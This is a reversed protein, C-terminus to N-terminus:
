HRLLFEKSNIIAWAVDEWAKRRDPARAVHELFSLGAPRTSNTASPPSRSRKSSRRTPPVPRSCAASGTTRPRSSPASRRATSSSFRRPSPPRSPANANAPSCATPSASPRSSRGAPGPAPCRRPASRSRAGPRLARGTRPGPLDRRDPGRRAPAPRRRALLQDRRRRQDREAPRRPRLDAVEHDPRGAAPAPLRGQGARRGPSRALAPQVPPQLRPLRRGARRDGPGDPPVLGPQGHEPRVPPQQRTLWRALDDLADPDDGLDPRPGHPPKPALPEGSRPHITGPRGELYIIEDGTVEHLDLDDKRRNNIEKRRVNTFYAALGYYDDQTWADYPHNHCRACQLRVGLFVQAFTEAATSPDRNTRHFSSPPNNFNSGTSAVLKRAFADLPVDAAIQDRLWRQFVWVGKSGM